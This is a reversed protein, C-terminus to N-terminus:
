SGVAMLAISTGFKGAFEESVEDIAPGVDLAEKMVLGDGDMLGIVRLHAIESLDSKM